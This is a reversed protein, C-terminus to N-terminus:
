CAIMENILSVAGFLPILLSGIAAWVHGTAAWYITGVIQGILCLAALLAGPLFILLRILKDSTAEM